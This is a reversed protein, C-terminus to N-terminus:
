VPESKLKVHYRGLWNKKFFSLNYNNKTPFDFSQFFYGIGGDLIGCNEPFGEWTDWEGWFLNTNHLLFLSGINASNDEYIINIIGENKVIGTVNTGMLTSQHIDITINGTESDLFLSSGSFYQVNQTKFYINGYNNIGTINGEITCRNFDYLIDGYTNNMKIKNINIGFPANIQADGRIVKTVIDFKIDANLSISVTANEMLPLIELLDLDSKAELIFELSTSDNIWTIDFFDLFSKEGLNKGFMEVNVEIKVYYNIPPYIYDIKVNGIESNVNLQIIQSSNSASYKFVRFEHINGYSSIIVFLFSIPILTILSIIFVFIFIITIIQKNAMM